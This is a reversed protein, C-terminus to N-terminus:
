FVTSFVSCFRKVPSEKEAEESSSDENRRGM